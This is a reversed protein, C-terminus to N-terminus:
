PLELLSWILQVRRFVKEPKILGFKALAEFKNTFKIIKDILNVLVLAITAYFISYSATFRFYVLLIILVFILILFHLGSFFTQKLNPVDKEEMGKLNLKLAELHSIYFM